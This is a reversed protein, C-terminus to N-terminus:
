LMECNSLNDSLSEEEMNLLCEEETSKPDVSESIRNIEELQTRSSTLKNRLADLSTMISVFSINNNAFAKLQEPEEKSIVGCKPACMRLLCKREGATFSGATTLTWLSPDEFSVTAAAAMIKRKRELKEWDTLIETASKIDKELNVKKNINEEIAQEEDFRRLKERVVIGDEGRTTNPTRQKKGSRNRQKAAERSLEDAKRKEGLVNDIATITLLNVCASEKSDVVTKYGNSNHVFPQVIVQELKDLLNKGFFGQAIAECIDEKFSEIMATRAKKAAAKRLNELEFETRKSQRKLKRNIKERQESTTILKPREIEYLKRNYLDAEQVKFHKDNELTIGFWGNRMRTASGQMHRNDEVQLYTISVTKTLAISGLIQSIHELYQEEETKTKKIIEGHEEVLEGYREKRERVDFIKMAVKETDTQAAPKFHSPDSM